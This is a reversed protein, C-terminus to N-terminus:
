FFVFISLYPIICTPPLSCFADVELFLRWGIISEPVWGNAVAVDYRTGDAEWGRWTLVEDQLINSGQLGFLKIFIYGVLADCALFSTGLKNILLHSLKWRISHFWAKKELIDFKVTSLKWKQKQYAHNKGDVMGFVNKEM